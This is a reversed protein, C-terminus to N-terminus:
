PCPRGKAARETLYTEQHSMKKKREVEPINFFRAILEEVKLPSPWVASESNDQDYVIAFGNVECLTTLEGM